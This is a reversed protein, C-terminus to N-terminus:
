LSRPNSSPDGAGGRIDSRYGSRGTVHHHLNVVLNYRIKCNLEDITVVGIVDGNLRLEGNRPLQTDETGNDTTTCKRNRKSNLPPTFM